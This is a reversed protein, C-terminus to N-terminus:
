NKCTRQCNPVMPAWPQREWGAPSNGGNCERNRMGSSENFAISSVEKLKGNGFKIIEEKDINFIGNNSSMWLKGDDELITYIVNHTLGDKAQITKIVKNKIWSLGGGYTGIWMIDQDDFYISTIINSGLGDSKNFSKFSKNDYKILGKGLPAFWINGDHDEAIVRVSNFIIGDDNIYNKLNEMKTDASGPGPVLGM